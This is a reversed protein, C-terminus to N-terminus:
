CAPRAPTHRRWSWGLLCLVGTGVLVLGSPEPVVELQATVDLTFGNLTFSGTPTTYSNTTGGFHLTHRGPGLPDLMLWYGDAAADTYTGPPGIAPLSGIKTLTFTGPTAERHSALDTIPVGDVTAFLKSPDVTGTTIAHVEELTSAFPPDAGNAAIWNVLPVLLYKDGPVSFTRTIPPNGQRTGPVFFVPGSQNVNANAGTLDLLPNTADPQSGVWNWWDATWEGITRGAVTSGGPLILEAQLPNAGVLLIMAVLGAVPIRSQRKM